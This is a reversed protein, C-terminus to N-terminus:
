KLCSEIIAGVKNKVSKFSLEDGVVSKSLVSYERLTMPDTLLRILVESINSPSPERVLSVDVLEVLDRSGVYKTIVPVVGLAMAEVVSIPFADFLSPQLYLSCKSLLKFLQTRPLVGIIRLYEEVGLRRAKNIILQGIPEKETGGVLVFQAKISESKLNLAIDPILHLGKIPIFAGSFCIWPERTGNNIKLLVELEPPSPHLVMSENNILKRVLSSVSVVLDPITYLWNIAPRLISPSLAVAAWCKYFAGLVAGYMTPKAGETILMGARRPLSVVPRQTSIIEVDHGLARMAKLWVVHGIHPTKLALYTVKVV